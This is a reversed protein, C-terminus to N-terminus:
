LTKYPSSKKQRVFFSFKFYLKSADEDEEVFTSSIRFYGFSLFSELTTMVPSSTNISYTVQNILIRLSIGSTYSLVFLISFNM